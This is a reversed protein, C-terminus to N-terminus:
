GAPGGLLVGGFVLLWFFTGLGGQCGPEGGTTVRPWAPPPAYGPGAPQHGPGAPQAATSGPDTGRFVPIERQASFLSVKVFELADLAAPPLGNATDEPRPDEWYFPRVFSPRRLALAHERAGRFVGGSQCVPM